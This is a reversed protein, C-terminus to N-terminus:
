LPPLTAERYVTDRAASEDDDAVVGDAVSPEPQVNAEGAFEDPAGVLAAEAQAAITAASPGLAAAQTAAQRLLRMGEARQGSATLLLGLNLQMLAEGAEDHNNRAHAIARRYTPAASAEGAAHQVTALHKLTEGLLVPHDLLEATGLAQRLHDLALANDNRRQALRALRGHLRVTASKDGTVTAIQLAQECLAIAAGVQGNDAALSALASLIPMQETGQGRRRYLDLARSYCERARPAQGRAAHIEGLLTLLGAQLETDDIQRAIAIADSLARIADEPQDFRWLAQGLSGLWQAEHRQDGTRRALDLAKMLHQLADVPRDIQSYAVGLGGLARQELRVDGCATAFGLARGFVDIAERPTNLALLSSGVRAAWEGAAQRNGLREELNVLTREHALAIAPRGRQREADSLAALCRGELALDGIQRAIELGYELQVVAEDRKGNRRLTEALSLVIRSQLGLDVTRRASESAQRQLAALTELDTDRPMLEIQRVLAEAIGRHHDLRQASRGARRYLAQAGRRDGERRVLDGLALAADVEPIADAEEEGLELQQRLLLRARESDGAELARQGLRGLAIRGGRVYDARQAVTYADRLLRDREHSPDDGPLLTDLRLAADVTQWDVGKARAAAHALRALVVAYDRDEATQEVVVQDFGRFDEETLADLMAPQRLDALAAQVSRQRDTVERAILLVRDGVGRHRSLLSRLASM